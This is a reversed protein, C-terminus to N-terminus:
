GITGKGPTVDSIVNPSYMFWIKVSTIDRLAMKATKTIM